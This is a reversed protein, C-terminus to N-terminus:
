RRELRRAGLPADSGALRGSVPRGVDSAGSAPARDDRQRCFPCTRPDHGPLKAHAALEERTGGRGAAGRPQRTSATQKNSRVGSPVVRRPASTGSASSRLVDPSANVTSSGAALPTFSRLKLPSHPSRGRTALPEGPRAFCLVALPGHCRVLFGAAGLFFLFAHRYRPRLVSGLRPSSTPFISFHRRFVVTM